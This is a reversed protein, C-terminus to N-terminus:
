TLLKDMRVTCHDPSKQFYSSIKRMSAPTPLGTTTREERKKMAPSWSLTPSNPSRVIRIGMELKQKARLDSLWNSKQPSGNEKDLMAPKQRCHLKSSSSSDELEPSPFPSALPPNERTNCDCSKMGKDETGEMSSNKWSQEKLCCIGIKCRKSVPSVEAVISNDGNKSKNMISGGSTDLRRKVKKEFIQNNVTESVNKSQSREVPALVSRPSTNPADSLSAPTSPSKVVWKKISMKGSASKPSTSSTQVLQCPRCNNDVSRQAVSTPTSSSSGSVNPACSAQQPSPLNPGEKMSQTNNIPQIVADKELHKKQCATGVLDSQAVGMKRNLRWIRVTNDDSCTAIKSFDSPCWSVCTVEQTHGHLVTPPHHPDSVKWIYANHDTSGSLLFQDDLSLNAKIYFTSNQHGNFTAVPATKLGTVNFMYINDDTCNAFLNSGKSDLVINSYGLKRASTGPYPFSQVPVPDQHHITYNKRLDWMKIVGDVAGASILTKEDRFIVVTVSQQFDVSPALGRAALRRKKQKPPTQRVQTNHAGTIQKVQRYFGDKKSCRTDWVMINGDRGGTCFVAKEQKGFAVSKLSCQHGKFTGLHESVYVDWLKATQDGSATVLKPEGPVWALDFVANNHALWARFIPDEKNHHEADYLRVVGEENAVGLVQHLQEATSWLCVFPPVPVGLDGYSTHEDQQNCQYYQLLTELPYSHPERTKNRIRSNLVARFLM